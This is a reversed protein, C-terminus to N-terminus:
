MRRGPLFSTSSMAVYQVFFFFFTQSPYFCGASLWCESMSHLAGKKPGNLLPHWLLRWTGEDYSGPEEHRLRFLLGGDHFGM